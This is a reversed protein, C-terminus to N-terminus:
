TSSKVLIGNVITKHFCETSNSYNKDYKIHDYIRKLFNKLNRYHCKIM